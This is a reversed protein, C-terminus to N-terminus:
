CNAVLTTFEDVGIKGDGDIDGAALLIKTEKASLERGKSSFGKLIFMLEDEEIFGSRDKDLIHFVKEMDCKTKKKLGVMEFFKKHNFSDVAECAGVAKAIDDACLVDTMSMTTQDAPCHSLSLPQSHEAPSM